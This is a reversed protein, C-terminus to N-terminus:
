KAHTKHKSSVCPIFSSLCASCCKVPLLAFPMASPCYAAIVRLQLDSLCSSIRTADCLAHYHATYNYICFYKIDSRANLMAPFPELWLQPPRLSINYQLLSVDTFTEFVEAAPRSSILDSTGYVPHSGYVEQRAANASVAKLM